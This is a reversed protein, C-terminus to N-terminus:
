IRLARLMSSHRGYQHFLTCQRYGRRSELFDKSKAIPHAAQTELLDEWDSKSWPQVTSALRGPWWSIRDATSCERIQPQWSQRLTLLNM